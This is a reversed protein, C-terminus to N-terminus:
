SKCYDTVCGNRGRNASRRYIWPTGGPITAIDTALQSSGGGSTVTGGMSTIAARANTIDQQLATLETAISM